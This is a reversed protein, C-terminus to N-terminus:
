LLDLSSLIFNIRKEPHLKPIDLVEYGANGYIEKMNEYIALMMELPEKRENDNEYIEPWPPAIFVTSYYPYSKAADIYEDYQFGDYKLYATVDYLGRDYFNWKGIHAKKYQELQREFVIESFGPNDIWPVLPTENDLQEKIVARAIESHCTFGRQALLKILTTKGSGPGGTIVVRKTNSM